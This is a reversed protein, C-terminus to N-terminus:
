VHVDRSNLDVPELLLAKLVAYGNGMVIIKLDSFVHYTWSLHEFKTSGTFRAGLFGESRICNLLKKLFVL